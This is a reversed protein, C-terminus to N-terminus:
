PLIIRHVVDADRNTLGFRTEIRYRDHMSRANDRDSSYSFKAEGTDAAVENRRDSALLLVLTVNMGMRVNM